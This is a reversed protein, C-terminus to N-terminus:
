ACIQWNKPDIENFPNRYTYLAAIHFCGPMLPEYQSRFNATGNVSAGGTHTGLYGKKFSLYKVRRPASCLKHNQRALRLAIEVSDSGGSMFFAPTLGDEAFFQTLLYSFEIVADNTTGRFNSCYPLTDLQRAIADKIPQCCFGLNVNWLGGVADIVTHGDVDTIRVGEAQTVITLADASQRRSAGYPAVHPPRQARNLFERDEGMRGLKLQRKAISM